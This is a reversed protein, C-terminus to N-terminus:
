ESIEMMRVNRSIRMRNIMTGSTDNITADDVGTSVIGAVTVASPLDVGM